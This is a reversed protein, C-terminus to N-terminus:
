PVWTEEGLTIGTVVFDFSPKKVQGKTVFVAEGNSETEITQSPEEAFDETFYGSVQANPVPNGCDDEIYV